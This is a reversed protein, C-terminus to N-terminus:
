TPITIVTGPFILNGNKCNSYGKKKAARDLVSKNANLIKTYKSGSGYYKKAIAWLTDGKKITYKKSKKSSNTVKQSNTSKRSTTTKKVTAKTNPNKIKRVTVRRFEKLEISYNITGPDGGEEQPVYSTIVAYINLKLVPSVLLFHCEQESEIRNMIAKHCTKPAYFKNRPVACYSGYKAPFFSSFSVTIADRRTKHLVEGVGDLDISIPKGKVSLKIKEPLVPFRFKSKDNNFNLWMQYKTTM